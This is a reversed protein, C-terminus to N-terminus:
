PADERIFRYVRLRGYIPSTFDDLLRANQALYAEVERRPLTLHQLYPAGGPQDRLYQEIHSDLIFIDPRFEKFADAVAARPQYRRYYILEEWSTYPHDNLAYWYTQAGMVAEGPEVHAALRAAVSHFELEGNSKLLPLTSVWGGLLVGVTLAAVLLRLRRAADMEGATFRQLAEILAAAILMDLAPSFLIMYMFFKNRALLWFGALLAAALLLLRRDGPQGRRLLLWVSGAVVLLSAQYVAALLGALSALGELIVEPQLTLLPPTHTASFVLRTLAAYTQPYPAIHALFYFLAGAGLGAWFALFRPSLLSNRRLPLLDLALIAPVFIASHPHAEFALGALLGALLRRWSSPSFALAIAWYGLAAALIDPRALHSSYFFPWSLATLLASVQGLRKSVLNLGVRYVAALLLGGAVFASLRSALLTPAGTLWLAPSLFWSPLLPLFTWYGPFRDFVGADLPGFNRGSQLYSWARSTFWAEDVFPAPYRLLTLAHYALLLAALAWPLWRPLRRENM